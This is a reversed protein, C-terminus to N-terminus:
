PIKSGAGIRANNYWITYDSTTVQGDMNIDTDLFGSEGTRASNYWLTYDETTIEGDRNVDGAWVAWVDTEMEKTSGSGFSADASITFNWLSSSDKKLNLLGVSMVASHNRAKVIIYYNGTNVLPIGLSATSGDPEVIIGDKGLLFSQQAVIVGESTRLMVLVWDVINEPIYSVTRPAETFPSSLPILGSDNLFTSMSDGAVDYGCQLFVKAATLVFTVDGVIESIESKNGWSDVVVVLYYVHVNPDDFLPENYQFSTETTAVLFNEDTPTFGPFTSYHVNYFFPTEIPDGDTNLTVPDWSITVTAAMTNYVQLFLFFFFIKLIKM